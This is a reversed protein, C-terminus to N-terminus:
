RQRGGKFNYITKLLRTIEVTEGIEGTIHAIDRYAFPAEDLTDPGIVSCYIGAMEKKFQAVTYSNKVDERKMRRGAGHPASQNWDANGKGMGLVVGDRMNIPIVVMEGARASIAGKRLIGSRGGVRDAGGADASDAGGADDSPEFYNHISTCTEERKWKMGKLIEAAIIERNLNAFHAAEQVDFLYAEMLDGELWTLPYPVREGRKKLVVAGQKMYHEAIEKGLHRSGSHILLYMAGEEDQDVEIFHNGGGLTGLSLLAKGENIHRMCCLDRALFDDAMPHVDRRIGFGFPVRERIVRDLKQPELRAEKLKICTMGCGMDIGLLGPMIRDRITMTLGVPGAQGPHVDPMVCIRSGESVPNDCIRQIQARAYEELDDTFVKAEAFAGRVIEM